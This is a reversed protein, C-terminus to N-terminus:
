QNDMLTVERAGSGHKEIDDWSVGRGRLEGEIVRLAVPEMGDRYVTVRDLLDQTTSERVNKQLREIEIPTMM